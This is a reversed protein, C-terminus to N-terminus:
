SEKKASRPEVPSDPKDPAAAAAAGQPAGSVRSPPQVLATEIISAPAAPYSAGEPAAVHLERQPLPIRIGADHFDAIIKLAIESKLRGHITSNPAWFQLVFNISSEGFGIFLAEPAPHRVVESNSSAAHLLLEIVKAPDTGYAVRIELDVRRQRQSLTWNTVRNLVLNTNPVIVEAGQFTRVNTARLGIHKVVGTVGEVELIDGVNVPRELLLLLGSALNNIINQLGFGVGLGFGGTLIAWRSLEVGSAALAMLFGALLLVYYSLTSITNPLGHKLSLRPLLDEQMLVRIAGAILIGGLLVACFVLVDGASISIAGVTIPTSLATGVADQVNKRVTFFNLAVYVWIAVAALDVLRSFFRLVKEGHARISAMANGRHPNFLIALITRAGQVATCLVVGFYASLITARRVLHSLAVFGLLNAVISGILLFLGVGISWLIFRVGWKMPRLPKLIAPRLYWLFTATAALYLVASLWRTSGGSAAVLELLSAALGFGVLAYILPRWAPRIM